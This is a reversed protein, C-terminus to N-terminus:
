TDSCCRFGVDSSSFLRPEVSDAACAMDDSKESSFAGGRVRCGQADCAVARTRAEAERGAQGAVAALTALAMLRRGENSLTEAAARQDPPVSQASAPASAISLAITV